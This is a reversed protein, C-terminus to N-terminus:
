ERRACNSSISCAVNCGKGSFRKSSRLEDSVVTIFFPCTQMPASFDIMVKENQYTGIPNNKRTPVYPLDFQQPKVKENGNLLFFAIIAIVAMIVIYIM